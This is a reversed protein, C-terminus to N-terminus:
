LLVILVGIAFLSIFCLGVWARLAILGADLCCDCIVCFLADLLLVICCSFRCCLSFGDVVDFGVVRRVIDCLVFGM